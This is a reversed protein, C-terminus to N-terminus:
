KIEWNHSSTIAQAYEHVNCSGSANNPEEEVQINIGCFECGFYNSGQKGYNRWNHTTGFGGNYTYGVPCNQMNPEDEQYLVKMCQNCGWAYNVSMQVLRAEENDKQPKADVDEQAYSEPEVSTNEGLADNLREEFSKEQECNTLGIVIFCITVISILKQAM